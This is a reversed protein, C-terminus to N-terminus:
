KKVYYYFPGFLLIHIAYLRSLLLHVTKLFDITEIPKIQKIANASKRLMDDMVPTLASLALGYQVLGSLGKSGPGRTM